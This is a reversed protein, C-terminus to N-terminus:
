TSSWDFLYFLLLLPRDAALDRLPVGDQTSIWVRVDPIPDGVELV